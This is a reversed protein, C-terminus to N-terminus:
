DFSVSSYETDMTNIANMYKNVVVQQSFKAKVMERGREGMVQIEEKTLQTIMFMKQALDKNSRDVSFADMYKDLAEVLNAHHSEALDSQEIADAPDQEPSPLFNSPSYEDDEAPSTM